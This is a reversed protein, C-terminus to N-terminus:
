ALAVGTSTLQEAVHDEHHIEFGDWGCICTTRLALDPDTELQHARLLAAVAPARSLAASILPPRWGAIVVADAMRRYLSKFHDHSGAWTGGCLELESAALAAALQEIQDDIHRALTADTDGPTTAGTSAATRVDVGAGASGGGGAVTEPPEAGCTCPEFAKCTADHIAAFVIDGDLASREGAEAGSPARGDLPWLGRVFDIATEAVRAWRETTTIDDPAKFWSQEMVTGLVYPNPAPRTVDLAQQLEDREHMVENLEARLSDALLPGDVLNVTDFGAYDHLEAPQNVDFLPAVDVDVPVPERRLRRPWLLMGGVATVAGPAAAPGQAVAIFLLVVGVLVAAAILRLLVLERGAARRYPRIPRCTQPSVPQGVRRAHAGRRLYPAVTATARRLYAGLDVDPVIPATSM